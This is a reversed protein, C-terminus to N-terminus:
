LNTCGDGSDLELVSLNDGLSVTDENATMGKKGEWENRLIRGTYKWGLGQHFYNERFDSTVVMESSRGVVNSETSKQRGFENM